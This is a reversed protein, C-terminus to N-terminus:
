KKKKHEDDERNDKLEKGSIRKWAVNVILYFWYYNLVAILLLFFIFINHYDITRGNIPPWISIPLVAFTYLYLRTYIWVTVLLGFFTDSIKEYKCYLFCKGIELFIDCADTLILINSGLRLAGNFYSGSVLFSTSIHHILMPWFDKRRTEITVHTLVSSIYFGLQTLYYYKFCTTDPSFPFTSWINHADLLFDGFVVCYMGWSWLLGYVFAKFVSEVFKHQTTKDEKLSEINRVWIFHVVFQFVYRGITWLVISTLLFKLSGDVTNLDFPIAEFLEEFHAM